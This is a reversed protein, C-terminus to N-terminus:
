RAKPGDPGILGSEVLADGLENAVDAGLGPIDRLYAYLKSTYSAGPKVSGIREFLEGITPTERSWKRLAAAARDVDDGAPLLAVLSTARDIPNTGDPPTVREASAMAPAKGNKKAHGNTSPKAKGSAKARMEQTLEKRAQKSFAKMDGADTYNLLIEAGIPAVAKDFTDITHRSTTELLYALLERPSAAKAWAAILRGEENPDNLDHIGPVRRTLPCLSKEDGWSEEMENMATENMATYWAVLQLSQYAANTEPGGQSTLVDLDEFNAAATTGIEQLALARARKGIEWDSPPRPVHAEKREDRKGQKETLEANILEVAAKRPVLWHPKGNDHALVKEGDLRGKLRKEVTMTSDEAYWEEGLDLWKSGGYQGTNHGYRFAKQADDGKLVQAGDARAKAETRAQHAKVKAHYCPPDTCTDARGDPYEARNNGSRKLCTTCAGASPVLEADKVPFPAQKLEIMFRQQITEKVQRYSPRVGWYDKGLAEKAAEQRLKDNPIRAILGATSVSLEGEAVAKRAKEPLVRLKLLDRITSVSKGVRAALDEVTVQHQDVLAAYGDAKELATVDERQENEIVQVELAERDTLECTMVPIETLGALKAARWRREGAVLEFTVDKPKSGLDGVWRCLIPQLVGKEAISSALEALTEDEFRKRPNTGSPKIKDLPVLAIQTKSM